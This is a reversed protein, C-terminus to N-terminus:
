GGFDDADILDGELARAFAAGQEAMRELDIRGLARAIASRGRDVDRDFRAIMRPTMLVVRQHQCAGCRLDLSWRGDGQDRRDQAYVFDAGCAVCM